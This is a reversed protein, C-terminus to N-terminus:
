ATDGRKNLPLSNNRGKDKGYCGYGQCFITSNRKNGNRMSTTVSTKLRIVLSNFIYDCVGLTLHDLKRLGERSKAQRAERLDKLLSRIKDPNQLDDSASRHKLFTERHLLYVSVDLM